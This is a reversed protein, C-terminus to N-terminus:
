DMNSWSFAAEPLADALELLTPNLGEAYFVMPDEVKGEVRKDPFSCTVRTGHGERSEVLLSGGIGRAIRRCIPLGLGMGHPTRIGGENGRPSFLQELQQASMGKGNDAVSLFGLKRSFKLEIRVQGGRPTFKFANSLLNLVLRDLGRLNMAAVHYPEACVFELGVGILEAQPLARRYIEEVVRVMDCNKLPLPAADEISAADALNNALRLIRYYGQYLRAAEADLEQNEKRLEAPALHSLAIGMAGLAQRLQGAVEPLVGTAGNGDM